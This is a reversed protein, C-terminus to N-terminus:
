FIKDILATIWPLWYVSTEYIAAATFTIFWAWIASKKWKKQKKVAKSLEEQMAISVIVKSRERTFEEEKAKFALAIENLTVDKSEPNISKRNMVVYAHLNFLDKRFEEELKDRQMIGDQLHNFQSEFYAVESSAKNLRSELERVKQTHPSEYYLAGNLMIKDYKEFRYMRNAVVLHKDEFDVLTTNLVTVLQGDKYFELKNFMLDTDKEKPM